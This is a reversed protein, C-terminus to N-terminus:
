GDSGPLLTVTLDITFRNGDQRVGLLRGEFTGGARAADLTEVASGPEFLIAINKGVVDDQYHGFSRRAGENWVTIRGDRDAAIIAHHTSGQLVQDTHSM